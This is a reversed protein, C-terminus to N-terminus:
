LLAFFPTMCTSDLVVYCTSFLSSLSLSTCPDLQHIRNILHLAHESAPPGAELVYTPHRGVPPVLRYHQTESPSPGAHLLTSEKAKHRPRSSAPVATCCAHELVPLAFGLASNVKAWSEMELPLNKEVTSECPSGLM